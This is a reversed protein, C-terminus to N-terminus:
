GTRMAAAAPAPTPAPTRFAAGVTRPVHRVQRRARDASLAVLGHAVSALTTHRHWGAYTRGEFDRLGVPYSIDVLDRDVRRVLKTLRLLTDVPADTLDTLWAHSLRGYPNEWEAVLSFQGPQYTLQTTGATRLEGRTRGPQPTGLSVPVKAALSTRLLGSVPDIWEVPRRMRRAADTVQRASVLQRRYGSLATDAPTLTETNVGIRAIFPLRSAILQAAVAATVDEGCDFVVPRRSLAWDDAMERAAAVAIHLPSRAHIDDPIGAGSRREPCDLWEPPLQLEWQVPVGVQENALWVGYAEQCNVARGSGVLPRRAVGVSHSGAKPIVLRRVVWASPRLTHDLYQAVAARMESWRWTSSSVFHQLSQELSKDGALTAIGRMSKRGEVELLGRVYSAAKRRQDSRRLPAFAVTSLEHAPTDPTLHRLVPSTTTSM